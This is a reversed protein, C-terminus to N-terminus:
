AELIRYYWPFRERFYVDAMGASPDIPRTRPTFQRAQAAQVALEQQYERTMPLGLHRYLSAIRGDIGSKLEHMQVLEWDPQWDTLLHQYFCQMMEVLQAPLRGSHLDLEFFEAGSALSGLLSPVAKDPERLCVIFRADPFTKQLTKVWSAFSANKSLYCRDQGHFYLHKQLCARYFQMIRQRDAEPMQWDLRSLNWIYSSETFPLFLIFCSM